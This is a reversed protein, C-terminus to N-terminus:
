RYKPDPDQYGCAICVPNFSQCNRQASCKPCTFLGTSTDVGPAIPPDFVYEGELESLMGPPLPPLPYSSQMLGGISQVPGGLPLRQVRGVQGVMPIAHYGGLRRSITHPEPPALELLDTVRKTCVDCLDFTAPGMTTSMTSLSGWQPVSTIGAIGNENDYSHETGCCDCKQILKTSV